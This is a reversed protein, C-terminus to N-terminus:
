VHARGIESDTSGADCSIVHPDWSLGTEFAAPSFATGLVGTPALLRMETM